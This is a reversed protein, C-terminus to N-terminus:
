QHSIHNSKIKRTYPLYSVPYQQNIKPIAKVATLLYKGSTTKILQLDDVIVM